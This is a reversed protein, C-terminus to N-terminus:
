IHLDMFSNCDHDLLLLINEMTKKEFHCLNFSCTGKDDRQGLVRHKICDEGLCLPKLKCDNSNCRDLKAKWLAVQKDDLVSRFLM